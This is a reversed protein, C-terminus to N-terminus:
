GGPMGPVNAGTTEACARSAEQFDPDFPDFLLGGDEGRMSDFTMGAVPDPDPWDIGKERMCEAFAVARENREAQEEPDVAPVAAALFEQCAGFASLFELSMMDIDSMAGSAFFSAAGFTPDPLDIGHERMCASFSLMADQSDLEAVPTPSPEAEPDPTALTAVQAAVATALMLVLSVTLLPLAAVRRRKM